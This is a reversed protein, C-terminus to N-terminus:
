FDSLGVVKGDDASCMCHLGQQFILSKRSKGVKIMPLVLESLMSSKRINDGVLRFAGCVRVPM